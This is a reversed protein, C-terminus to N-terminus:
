PICAGPSVSVTSCDCRHHHVLVMNAIRICPTMTARSQNHAAPQKSGLYWSPIVQLSAIVHGGPKVHLRKSLRQQDRGMNSHRSSPSQVFPTHSSDDPRHTSGDPDQPSPRTFAAAPSTQSGPRSVQQAVVQSASADASVVHRGDRPGQSGASAHVPSDGAHGGSSSAGAVVTHWRLAPGHSGASVHVPADGIHGGSSNAGAVVTHWGPAPIHSGASSQSPALGVHGASAM